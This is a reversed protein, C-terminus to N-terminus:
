WNKIWRQSADKVTGPSVTEISRASTNEEDDGYSWLDYTSNITTAAQGGTLPVAKEYQFPRGFGDAMFYRGDRNIWFEKPMDTFMVNKSENAELSGDSAAPGANSPTQALMISDYGDGSLAQYLMAAAGVQYTKNGIAIGDAPNQPAPYEGFENNYRDLASKMASMAATTRSRASSKQAYTFGGITLAFLLAIITIVVLLEIVTFGARALKRSHSKM